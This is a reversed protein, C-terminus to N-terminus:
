SCVFYEMRHEQPLALCVAAVLIKHCEGGDTEARDKDDANIILMWGLSLLSWLFHAAWAFAFLCSLAVIPSFFFVTSLKKREEHINSWALPCFHKALLLSLQRRESLPNNLAWKVSYVVCRLHSDLLSNWYADHIDRGHSHLRFLARVTCLVSRSETQGALSEGRSEKESLHM